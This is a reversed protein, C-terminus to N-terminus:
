FENNSEEEKKNNDLLKNPDNLFYDYLKNMNEPNDLFEQAEKKMDDSISIDVIGVNFGLNLKKGFREPNTRELWWASARWDKESAKFINAIHFNMRQFNAKRIAESFESKYYKNEIGDKLYEQQWLYFESESIGVRLLADKNSNGKEIFYLLLAILNGEKFYKEFKENNGELYALVVKKEYKTKRM